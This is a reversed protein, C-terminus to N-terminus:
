GLLFYALTSTEEGVGCRRFFMGRSLGANLVQITLM